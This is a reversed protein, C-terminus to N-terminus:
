QLWEDKPNKCDKERRKQMSGQAKIPPKQHLCKKKKGINKNSIKKM